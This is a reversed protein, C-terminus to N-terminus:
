ALSSPAKRALVWVLSAYSDRYTAAMQHWPHWKLAPVEFRSWGLVNFLPDFLSGAGRAVVEDAGCMRALEGLGEPTYRWFDGPGHYPTRFCTTHLVWGGPRTVRLTEKMAVSPLGHIHEFVQDSVVLGFSDDAYPLNLINVEPYNADSIETIAAGMFPLLHRSHSISLAPGEFKVGRCAETIGRYMSFRSFSHHALKPVGLTTLHYLATGASQLLTRTNM